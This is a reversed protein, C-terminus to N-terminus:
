PVEVYVVGRLEDRPAVVEKGGVHRPEHSTADNNNELFAVNKKPPQFVLVAESKKEKGDHVELVWKAAARVVVEPYRQAGASPEGPACCTDGCEGLYIM